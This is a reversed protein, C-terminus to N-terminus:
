GSTPLLREVESALAILKEHHQQLEPNNRAAYRVDHAATHLADAAASAYRSWQFGVTQPMAGVSLETKEHIEYLVKAGASADKVNMRLLRFAPQPGPRERFADFRGRMYELSGDQEGVVTTWRNDSLKAEICYLYKPTASV